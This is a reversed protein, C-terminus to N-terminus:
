AQRNQLKPFSLRPMPSRVFSPSVRDFARFFLMRRIVAGSAFASGLCLLMPLFNKVVPSLWPDQMSQLPMLAVIGAVVFAALAVLLLEFANQRSPIKTLDFRDLVALQRELARHDPATEDRKAFVLSASLAQDDHVSWGLDVGSARLSHMETLLDPDSAFAPIDSLRCVKREVTEGRLCRDMIVPSTLVCLLGIKANDFYPIANASLQNRSM